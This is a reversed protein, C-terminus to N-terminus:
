ANAAKREAGFEPKIQGREFVLFIRAPPAILARM